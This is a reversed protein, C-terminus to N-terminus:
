PPEISRLCGPSARSRCADCDIERQAKSELIGVNPSQTQRRRKMIDSLRGNRRTDQIFRTPQVCVFSSNDLLMGIKAILGQLIGFADLRFQEKRYPVM